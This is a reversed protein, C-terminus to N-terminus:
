PFRAQTQFAEPEGGSKSSVSELCVWKERLQETPPVFRRPRRLPLAAAMSDSGAISTTLSGLLIGHTVDEDVLFAMEGRQREVAGLTEIGNGTRHQFLQRRVEDLEIVISVNADDHDRTGPLAEAGAKVELVCRGALADAGGVATADRDM